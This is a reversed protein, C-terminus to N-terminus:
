RRQLDRHDGQGHQEHPCGAVEPARVARRARRDLRRKGAYRQSRDSELDDRPGLLYPSGVVLNAEGGPRQTGRQRTSDRGRM